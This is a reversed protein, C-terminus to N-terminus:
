YFTVPIVVNYIQTGKTLTPASTEFSGNITRNNKLTFTVTISIESPYTKYTLYFTLMDQNLIIIYSTANTSISVYSLQNTIILGIAGSIIDTDDIISLTYAITYTGPSIQVQTNISDILYQGFFIQILLSNTPSQITISGYLILTGNNYSTSMNIPTDNVNAIVQYSQINNLLTNYVIHFLNNLNIM